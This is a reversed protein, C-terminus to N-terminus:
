NELSPGERCGVNMQSCPPDMMWSGSSNVRGSYLFMPFCLWGCSGARQVIMVDDTYTCADKCVCFNPHFHRGDHMCTKFNVRTTSKDWQNSRYSYFILAHETKPIWYAAIGLIWNVAMVKARSAPHEHRRLPSNFMSFFFYFFIHQMELSM